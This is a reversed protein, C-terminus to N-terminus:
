SASAFINLIYAFKLTATKYLQPISALLCSSYPLSNLLNLVACLAIMFITLICFVLLVWLLPLLLSAIVVHSLLQLSLALTLAFLKLIFYITLLHLADYTTNSSLLPSAPLSTIALTNMTRHLTSPGYYCYLSAIFAICLSITYNRLLSYKACYEYIMCSYAIQFLITLLLM